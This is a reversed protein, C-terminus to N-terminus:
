MKNSYTYALTGKSFTRWKKPFIPGKLPSAGPPVGGSPM